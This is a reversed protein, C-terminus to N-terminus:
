SAPSEELRGKFILPLIEGLALRLMGTLVVRQGLADFVERHHSLRSELGDRDYLRGDRIVAIMTGLHELDETPDLRYLILDAPAGVEISGLGEIGTARASAVMSAALAEEASLGAEELLRLERHLGAGPVVAPAMTDTGTYIPVGGEHLAHVMRKMQAFASRVMEFDAASMRRAASLGVEPDWLADRYWRPLLEYNKAKRDQDEVMAAYDESGILRDITILTPTHAVGLELSRSVVSEFYREDARQWAALFFPYDREVEPGHPAIGRLHQVEDFAAEDWRIAKPTHGIVPVDAARGEERVAITAEASLGDYLKLCDVEQEILARAARRGQEADEVSVSGRWLPQPGDIMPGCRLVRPGPFELAEIREMASESAGAFPDGLSRVTTVGHILHLLAFLEIQGEIRPSPWHVHMDSLGPMLFAGVYPDDADPDARGIATIRGGTITVSRRTLREAGPVVITVSGLRAGQEPVPKPTPARLSLWVAIFPLSVLGVGAITALGIRILVRKLDRAGIELPVPPYAM